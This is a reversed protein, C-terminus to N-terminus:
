DELFLRVRRNYPNDLQEFSLRGYKELKVQRGLHDSITNVRHPVLDLHSEVNGVIVFHISVGMAVIVSGEISAFHAVRKFVGLIRLISIAKTVIIFQNLLLDVVVHVQHFVLTLEAGLVVGAFDLWLTSYHLILVYVHKSFAYVFLISFVQDITRWVFHDVKEM